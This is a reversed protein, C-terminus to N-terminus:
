GIKVNKHDTKKRRFEYLTQFVVRRKKHKGLVRKTMAVPLEFFTKWACRNIVCHFGIRFSLDYFSERGLSRM